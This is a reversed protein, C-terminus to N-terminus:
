QVRPSEEEDAINGLGHRSRQRGLVILPEVLFHAARVVQQCIGEQESAGGFDADSFADM